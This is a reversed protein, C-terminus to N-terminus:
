TFDAKVAEVADVDRGARELQMQLRRVRERTERERRAKTKSSGSPAVAAMLEQGDSLNYNKFDLTM